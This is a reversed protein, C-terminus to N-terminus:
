NHNSKKKKIIHNFSTTNIIIITVHFNPSYFIDLQFSTKLLQKKPIKGLNTSSTKYRFQPLFPNPSFANVNQQKWRTSLPNRKKPVFIELIINFMSCSVLSLFYWWCFLNYNQTPVLVFNKCLLLQPHYNLFMKEDEVTLVSWQYARKEWDPDIFWWIQSGFTSFPNCVCINSLM